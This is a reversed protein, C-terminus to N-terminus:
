CLAATRTLLSKFLAAIQTAPQFVTKCKERVDIGKSICLLQNWSKKLANYQMLM